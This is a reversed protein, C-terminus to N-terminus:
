GIRPAGLAGKERSQALLREAFDLREHTEELERRLAAVEGSLQDVRPDDAALPVGDPPIRGHMIRKGIARFIPSYAVLVLTAAVTLGELVDRIMFDQM